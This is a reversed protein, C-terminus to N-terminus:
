VYTISAHKAHCATNHQTTNHQTTNHQTTNHQTTNHQTTNHQTTSHQTTNHQTTNPQTTNHQPTTHHTTNHQTTNHQTTNHQTTHESARHVTDRVLLKRVQKARARHHQTNQREVAGHTVFYSHSAQKALARITNAHAVVLVRAGTSIAHRTLIPRRTVAVSHTVTRRSGRAGRTEGARLRPAIKEVWCVAVRAGCQALSEALLQRNSENNLSTIRIRCTM